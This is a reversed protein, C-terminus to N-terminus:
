FKVLRREAAIQKKHQSLVFNLYGFSAVLFGLGLWWEFFFGFLSLAVLLWYTINEGRTKRKSAVANLAKIEKLRIEGKQKSEERKVKGEWRIKDIEMKALARQDDDSPASRGRIGRNRMLITGVLFVAGVLIVLLGEIRGIITQAGVVVIVGIGFAMVSAAALTAYLLQAGPSNPQRIESQPITPVFEQTPEISKSTSVSPLVINALDIDEGNKSAHVSESVQNIEISMPISPELGQAQVLVASPNKELYVSVARLIPGNISWLDVAYFWFFYFVGMESAGILSRLRTVYSWGINDPGLLDLQFLIRAIFPALM